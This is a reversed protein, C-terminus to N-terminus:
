RVILYIIGLIFLGIVFWQYWKTPKNLEFVIKTNENQYTKKM